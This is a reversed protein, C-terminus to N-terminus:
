MWGIEVSRTGAKVIQSAEIQDQFSRERNMDWCASSLRHLPASPTCGHEQSFCTRQQTSMPPGPHMNITLPDQPTQTQTVVCASSHHPRLGHAECQPRELCIITPHRLETDLSALCQRSAAKLSMELTLSANFFKKM